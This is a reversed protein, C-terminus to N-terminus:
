NKQTQASNAVASGCAAFDDPTNYNWGTSKLELQYNLEDNKWKTVSLRHSFSKGHKSLMEINMAGDPNGDVPKLALMPKLLMSQPRRDPVNLGVTEERHVCGTAQEQLRLTFLLMNNAEGDFTVTYAFLDDQPATTTLSYALPQDLEKDCCTVQDGQIDNTLFNVTEFRMDGDKDRFCIPAREKGFEKGKYDRSCYVKKNTKSMLRREFLIAGAPVDASVTMMFREDVLAEELVAGPMNAAQKETFIIDGQTASYSINSKQDRELDAYLPMVRGTICAQLSLAILIVFCPQLFKM